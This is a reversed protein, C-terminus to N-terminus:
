DSVHRREIVGRGAGLRAEIMTDSSQKFGFAVLSV